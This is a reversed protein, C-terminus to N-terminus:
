QFITFDFIQDITQQSIKIELNKQFWYSKWSSNIKTYRNPFLDWLWEIKYELYPIEISNTTELKSIVSLKLTCGSSTWCNSNYYNQFTENAWSSLINWIKDYIQWYCTWTCNSKKVWDADIYSWSAVLTDNESLLLWNIIPLTGGSLTEDDNVWNLDIDPVRFYFNVWNWNNTLYWNWVQLQLPAYASIINHDKNYESNWEWPLPITSWTSNTIYSYWKSNNPMIAWTDSNLSTWRTKNIYYLAKEIGAYSTYYANSANEIWKINKSFPIMYSLIMYASLSILLVLWMWIIISFWSNNIKM